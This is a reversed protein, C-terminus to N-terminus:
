RGKLAGGGKFFFGENDKVDIPFLTALLDGERRLVDETLCSAVSAYPLTFRALLM